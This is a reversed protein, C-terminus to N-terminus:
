PQTQNGLSLIKEGLQGIGGKFIFLVFIIGVIGLIIMIIYAYGIDGRKQKCFLPWRLSAKASGRKGKILNLLKDLFILLNKM